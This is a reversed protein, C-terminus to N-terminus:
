AYEGPDQRAAALLVLADLGQDKRDAKDEGEERDPKRQQDPPYLYTGDMLSRPASVRISLFGDHSLTRGGEPAAKLFM